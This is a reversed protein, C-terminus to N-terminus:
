RNGVTRLLCSSKPDHNNEGDGSYRRLKWVQGGGPITIFRLAKPIQDKQNEHFSPFGGTCTCLDKSLSFM